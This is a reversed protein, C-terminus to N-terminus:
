MNEGFYNVIDKFEDIKKLQNESFIVKQVVQLRYLFTLLIGCNKDLITFVKHNISKQFFNALKVKDVEFLRFSFIQINLFEKYSNLLTVYTEVFYRIKFSYESFCKIEVEKVEGNQLQSQSESSLTLLFKKLEDKFENFLEILKNKIEVFEEAYYDVVFKKLSNLDIDLLNTNNIQFPSDNRLILQKLKEKNINVDFHLQVKQNLLSSLVPM